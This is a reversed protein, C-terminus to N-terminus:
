LTNLLQRDPPRNLGKLAPYNYSMMDLIYRLNTVPTVAKCVGYVMELVVEHYFVNTGNLEQLLNRSHKMKKTKFELQVYSDYMM